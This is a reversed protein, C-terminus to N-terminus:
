RDAIPPPRGDLEQLVRDLIAPMRSEIRPSLGTGMAASSIGVGLLTCRISAITRFLRIAQVASLHHAHDQREDLGSRAEDFVLVSGPETDDEIADIVVVRSRGEMQGAHRLLDSGGCIVEAYAPLRTDGALREAVVCGVGDDGMLPNGLGIVLVPKM